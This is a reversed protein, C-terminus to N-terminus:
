CGLSIILLLSSASMNIESIGNILLELERENFGNILDRPVFELLGEMLFKFQEKVRGSIQYAVFANVFDQKNEETLPIGEGGGPKLGITVL